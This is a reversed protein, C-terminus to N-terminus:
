ITLLMLLKEYNMLITFISQLSIDYGIKVDSEDIWAADSFPKVETEFFGAIGGDYSFPVRARNIQKKDAKVKGKNKGKMEIVPSGHEDLLPHMIPVDWYGFEANPIVRSFRSDAHTYALYLQLIERRTEESIECNKDGLNKRIGSKMSTADILQVTGRRAASKQNTVVWLYTSIPTNYFMKEPLAIIAELMDQEIIM